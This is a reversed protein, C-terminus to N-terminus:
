PHRQQFGDLLTYFRAREGKVYIWEETTNEGSSPSLQGLALEQQHKDLLKRYYALFTQYHANIAQLRLPAQLAVAQSWQAELAALVTKGRSPWDPFPTGQHNRLGRWTEYFPDVRIPSEGTRTVEPMLQDIEVKADHIYQQEQPTIPGPTEPAATGYDPGVTKPGGSCATLGALALILILDFLLRRL